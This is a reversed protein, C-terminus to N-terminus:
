RSLLEFPTNRGGISDAASNPRELVERRPQPDAGSVHTPTSGSCGGSAAREYLPQSPSLSKMHKVMAWGFQASRSYRLARATSVSHLISM